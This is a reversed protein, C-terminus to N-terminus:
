ESMTRSEIQTVVQLHTLGFCQITNILSFCRHLVGYLGLTFSTLPDEGWQACAFACGTRTWYLDSIRQKELRRGTPHSLLWSLVIWYPRPSCRSSILGHHIQGASDLAHGVMGGVPISDDAICLMPTTGGMRMCVWSAYWTGWRKLYKPRSNQYFITPSRSGMVFHANGGM